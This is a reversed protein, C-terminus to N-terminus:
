PVFTLRADVKNRKTAEIRLYEAYSKGENIKEKNNSQPIEIPQPKVKNRVAMCERSCYVNWFNAVKAGCVKCLPREWKVKEKPLIGAKQIQYIISSHDVKYRRALRPYSWGEKRLMRMEELLEPNNFFVKKFPKRM